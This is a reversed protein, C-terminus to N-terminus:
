PLQGYEAGGVRGAANGPALLMQATGGCCEKPEEIYLTSYDPNIGVLIVHIKRDASMGYVVRLGICKENGIIKKIICGNFSSSDGLLYNLDPMGGQLGPQNDNGGKRKSEQYRKTWVRISDDWIFHCTRVLQKAQSDTVEGKYGGNENKPNGKKNCKSFLILTFLATTFLVLARFKFIIKM